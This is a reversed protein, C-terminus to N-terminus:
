TIRWSSKIRVEYKVCVSGTKQLDPYVDIGSSIGGTYINIANALDAYEYNSTNVYGLVSRLLGLYPVDEQPIDGCEFMM